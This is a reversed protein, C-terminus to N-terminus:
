IGGGNQNVAAKGTLLQPLTHEGRVKVSPVSTVDFPDIIIRPRTGGTESSVGGRRGLSDTGRETWTCCQEPDSSVGGM